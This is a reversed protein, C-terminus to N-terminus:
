GLLIGLASGVIVNLVLATAFNALTTVIAPWLRGTGSLALLARLWESPVPFYPSAASGLVQWLLLGAALPLLGALPAAGRARRSQNAEGRTHLRVRQTITTMRDTWQRPLSATGGSRFGRKTGLGPNRHCCSLCIRRGTQDGAARPGHRLWTRG